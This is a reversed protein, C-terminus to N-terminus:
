DGGAAHREEYRSLFLMYTVLILIMFTGHEWLEIRDGFLIDGACFVLFVIMSAKFCVRHLAAPSRPFVLMAAFLTGVIIQLVAFSYLTAQAAAAPLHLKEFYWIFKADRTTGYWGVERVDGTDFITRTAETLQIEEGGFFKDFGNLLWFSAWFAYLIYEVRVHDDLYVFLRKM